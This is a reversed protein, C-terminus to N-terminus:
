DSALRSSGRECVFRIAHTEADSRKEVTPVFYWDARIAKRDVDLVM